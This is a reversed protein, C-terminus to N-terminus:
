IDALIECIHKGYLHLCGTDWFLAHLSAQYSLLRTSRRHLRIPANRQSLAALLGKVLNQFHVQFLVTCVKM